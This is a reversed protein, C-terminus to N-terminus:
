FRLAIGGLLIYDTEPNTLGKKIGADLDFDDTASYIVRLILFAPETESSIDTNTNVGIDGAIKLKKGLATPQAGRRRM